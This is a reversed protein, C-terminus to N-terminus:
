QSVPGMGVQGALNGFQDPSTLTPDYRVIMSEREDDVTVEAVGPISRLADGIEERWDQKNRLTLRM